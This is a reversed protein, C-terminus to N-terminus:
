DFESYRLGILEKRIKKVLPFADKEMLKYLITIIDERGKDREEM